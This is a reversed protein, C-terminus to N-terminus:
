NTSEFKIKMGIDNLDYHITSYWLFQEGICEWIFRFGNQAIIDDTTFTITVNPQASLILPPTTNGCFTGLLTNNETGDYLSIM